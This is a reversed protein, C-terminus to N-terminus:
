WYRILCYFHPDVRSIAQQPARTPPMTSFAPKDRLYLSVNICSAIFKNINAHALTAAMANPTNAAYPIQRAANATRRM